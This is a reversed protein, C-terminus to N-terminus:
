RVKTLFAFIQIECFTLSQFCINEMRSGMLFHVGDCDEVVFEEFIRLLGLSYNGIKEHQFINKQSLKSSKLITFGRHLKGKKFHM